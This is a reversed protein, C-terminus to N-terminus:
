LPSVEVFLATQSPNFCFPLPKLTLHFDVSQQASQDHQQQPRNKEPARITLLLPSVCQKVLLLLFNFLLAGGGFFGQSFEFGCLGLENLAFFHGRQTLQRRADGM